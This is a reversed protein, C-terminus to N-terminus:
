NAGYTHLKPSLIQIPFLTLLFDLREIPSLRSLEQSSVNPFDRIIDYMDQGDKQSDMVSVLYGVIISGLCDPRARMTSIIRPPTAVGSGEYM